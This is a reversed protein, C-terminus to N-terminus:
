SFVKTTPTTLGHDRKYRATEELGHNTTPMDGPEVMSYTSGAKDGGRSLADKFEQKTAVYQGVAHNYHPQFAEKVNFGWQRYLPASCDPCTISLDRQLRDESYGCKRCAYEYLPM